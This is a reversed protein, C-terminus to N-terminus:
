GGCCPIPFADLEAQAGDTTVLNLVFRDQDIVLRIGAGLGWADAVLVSRPDGEAVDPVAWSLGGDVTALLPSGTGWMWGTGDAVLDMHMGTGEYPAYTPKSWTRGGDTSRHLEKLSIRDTNDAECLVVITSSDVRSVDQRRLTSPCPSAITTWTEGGDETLRLDPVQIGSGDVPSGASVVLAAGRDAAFSLAVPWALDVRVWGGDDYRYRGPFCGQLASDCRVGAWARGDGTVAIATVTGVGLGALDWTAGGDNTALIVADGPETRWATFGHQWDIFAVGTPAAVDARTLLDESWRGTFTAVDIPGSFRVEVAYGIGIADCGIPDPFRLAFTAGDGALDLRARYDCGGGVWAVVLSSGDRGPGFALNYPNGASPHQGRWPVVSRVKGSADGVVVSMGLPLTVGEAVLDVEFYTVEAPPQVTPSPIPSPSPPQTTGASPATTSMPATSPVPTPAPGPGAVIWAFATLALVATALVAAAAFWAPMRSARPPREDRIRRMVSAALDGPVPVAGLDALFVDVADEHRGMM